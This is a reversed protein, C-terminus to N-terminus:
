QWDPWSILAAANSVVLGRGLSASMSVAIRPLTQRQPVYGRM